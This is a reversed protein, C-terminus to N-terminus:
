PLGWMDMPERSGIYKLPRTAPSRRPPWPARRNWRSAAVPWSPHPCWWRCSHPKVADHYFFHHTSFGHSAFHVVQLCTSTSSVFLSPGLCNLMLHGVTGATKWPVLVFWPVQVLWFNRKTNLYPSYCKGNKTNVALIELPKINKKFMNKVEWVMPIWSAFNEDDWTKRMMLSGVAAAM